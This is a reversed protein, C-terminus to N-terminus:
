WYIASGEMVSCLEGEDSLWSTRKVRHSTQGNGDQQEQCESQRRCLVTLVLSSVSDCQQWKNGWVLM